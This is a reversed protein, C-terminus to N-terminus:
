RFRLTFTVRIRAFRTGVIWETRPDGYLKPERPNWELATEAVEALRASQDFTPSAVDFTCRYLKIMGDTGVRSPPYIQIVPETVAYELVRSDDDASLVRNLAEDDSYLEPYFSRVLEGTKVDAAVLM